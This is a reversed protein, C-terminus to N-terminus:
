YLSQMLRKRYTLTLDAEDGLLKFITLMAKRPGDQRFRRDKQV